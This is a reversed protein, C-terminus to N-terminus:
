LEVAVLHAAADAGLLPALPHQQDGAGAPALFLIVVARLLGAEVQVHDLRDLDAAQQLQQGRDAVGSVFWGPPCRAPRTDAHRALLLLSRQRKRCRDGQVIMSSGAFARCVALRRTWLM